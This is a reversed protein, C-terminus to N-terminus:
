ITDDCCLLDMSTPIRTVPHVLQQLKSVNNATVNWRSLLDSVPNMKGPIHVVMIDINCASLWLFINRAYKAMTSDCTKGTSLVSVVAQNDCKILVRTGTWQVHWVKPAVLINIMEIYAINQDHWINPLAM